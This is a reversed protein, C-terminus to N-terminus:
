WFETIAERLSVVQQQHCEALMRGMLPLVEMEGEREAAALSSASPRGSVSVEGGEEEEVVPSCVLKPLHQQIFRKSGAELDEAECEVSLARLERQESEVEVADERTTGSGVDTVGCEESGESEEEEGGLGEGDSERSNLDECWWTSPSTETKRGVGTGEGGERMYGFDVGTGPLGHCSTAMESEGHGGAGARSSGETSQDDYAEESPSVDGFLAAAKSIQEETLVPSYYDDEDCEYNRSISYAESESDDQKAPSEEELEYADVDAFM